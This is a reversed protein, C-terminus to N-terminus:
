SGKVFDAVVKALEPGADEQLFHGAGTITPHDRGAAGPMTRALIPAMAATIPDDPRTPLLTPMMRPGAKYSGDPFPADYAARASPALDRQCGSLVLRGIDLADAAGAKEVARRFQWWVEPM